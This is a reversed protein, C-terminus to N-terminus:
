FAPRFDSSTEVEFLNDLGEGMQIAFTPDAKFTFTFSPEALSGLAAVDPRFCRVLINVRGSGNKKGQCQTVLTPMADTAAQTVQFKLTDATGSVLKFGYTRTKESAPVFLLTRTLTFAGGNVDSVQLNALPFTKGAATATGIAVGTRKGVPVSQFATLVAFLDGKLDAAARAPSAALCALLAM